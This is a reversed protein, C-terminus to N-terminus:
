PAGGRVSDPRVSEHCCRSAFKAFTLSEVEDARRRLAAAAARKAQMFATEASRGHDWQAQFYPEVIAEVCSM